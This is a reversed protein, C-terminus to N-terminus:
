GIEKTHIGAIHIGVGVFSFAFLLLPSLLSLLILPTLSTAENQDDNAGFRLRITM